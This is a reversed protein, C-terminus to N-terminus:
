RKIRGEKRGEKRVEMVRLLGGDKGGRKVRQRRGEMREQEQSSSSPSSSGRREAAPSCLPQADISMSILFFLLPPINNNNNKRIEQKNWTLRTLISPHPTLPIKLAYRCPHPSSSPVRRTRPCMLLLLLLLLLLLRSPFRGFAAPFFFTLWYSITRASTVSLNDNVTRSWLNVKM